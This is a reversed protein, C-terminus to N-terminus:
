HVIQTVDERSLFDGGSSPFFFTLLMWSAAEQDTNVQWVLSNNHATYPTLTCQEASELLLSWCQASEIDYRLSCGAVCQFVRVMLMM